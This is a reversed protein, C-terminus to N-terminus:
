RATPKRRSLVVAGSLLAIGLAAASSGFIVPHRQRYSIYPHNNRQETALDCLGTEYDFSGGQSVCADTRMFDFLFVSTLALLVFTSALFLILWVRM